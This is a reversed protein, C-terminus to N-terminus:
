PSFECFSVVGVHIRRHIRCIHRWPSMGFRHKLFCHGKGPRQENRRKGKRSDRIGRSASSPRWIGRSLIAKTTTISLIKASPLCPSIIAMMRAHIGMNAHYGQICGHIMNKVISHSSPVHGNLKVDGNISM